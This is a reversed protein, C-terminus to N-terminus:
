EPDKKLRPKRVLDYCERTAPDTELLQGCPARRLCIEITTVRRDLSDMVTFVQDQREETRRFHREWREAGEQRLSEARNFKDCILKQNAELQRHISASIWKVMAWAGMGVGGAVTLAIKIMEASFTETAM